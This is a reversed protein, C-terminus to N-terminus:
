PAESKFTLVGSKALELGALRLLYDVAAKVNEASLRDNGGKPPMDNKGNLSSEYLTDKGAKARPEWAAKNGAVPAGLLGTRHCKSCVQEYVDKGDAYAHGAFVLVGAVSLIAVSSRM